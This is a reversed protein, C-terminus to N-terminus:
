KCNYKKCDEILFEGAHKIVDCNTKYFIFKGKKSGSILNANKLEKLHFSLNANTMELVDLLDCPCKGDDGAKILEQIIDIREKKALASFIKVLNESNM